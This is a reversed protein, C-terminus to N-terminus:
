DAVPNSRLIFSQDATMTGTSATLTWWMVNDAGQGSCEDSNLDGNGNADAAAACEPTDGLPDHPVEADVARETTHFLGLFHGGEHAMIKGVDEAAGDLDATSIVVGSKSTGHVSAAGPPGGSLGLIVAGGASGNAIEQVLFFTIRRRPEPASTRLLDNFESYDTDTVDVVGYTGVDGTFAVYSFAPALGGDAWSDELVGLATQWEPDAEITGADLGPVDVVVFEVVLPAPDSLTDVRHVAACDASTPGDLYWRFHWTGAAPTVDPSVPILGPSLDDLYDSRFGGAAPAYGDYVAGGSPDTLSWVKGLSADGYGGCYALTSVTGAPVAVDADVYGDADAQLTGLDQDELEEASPTTAKDDGNCALLVAVPLVARM